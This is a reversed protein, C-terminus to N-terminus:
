VKGIILRRKDAIKQNNAAYYLEEFVALTWARRLNVHESENFDRSIDHPLYTVCYNPFYLGPIILLKKRLNNVRSLVIFVM